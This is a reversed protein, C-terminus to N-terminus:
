KWYWTRLFLGSLNFVNSCEFMIQRIWCYSYCSVEMSGDVDALQRPHENDGGWGENQMHRAYFVRYIKWLKHSLHQFIKPHSQLKVLSVLLVEEESCKEKINDKLKMLHRKLGSCPPFFLFIKDQFLACQSSFCVFSSEYNGNWGASILYHM